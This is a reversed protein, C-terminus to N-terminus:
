KWLIEVLAEVCEPSCICYKVSAQCYIDAHQMPMNMEGAVTARRQLRTSKALRM